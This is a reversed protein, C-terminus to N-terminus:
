RPPGVCVVPTWAPADSAPFSEESAEQVKDLGAEGTAKKQQRHRALFAVAGAAAAVILLVKFLRSMTSTRWPCKIRAATLGTSNGAHFGNADVVDVGFAHRGDGGPLQRGTHNLCLDLADFPDDPDIRRSNFRSGDPM